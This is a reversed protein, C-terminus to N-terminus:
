AAGALAYALAFWFVMHHNPDCVIMGAIALPLILALPLPGCANLRARWAAKLATGIGLFFLLFGIVGTEVLLLLALNHAAVTRQQRILHPMARRTLEFQYRDPGSGYIPSRLFMEWLVPAMRVRGEQQYNNPTKVNELREMVTPIQWVITSLVAFVLLLGAFRKARSEFWGGQLSLVLVGMVLILFATRSGTKAMGAGTLATLALALLRQHVKVGRFMGLGVLVVVAIAYTAGIVNANQGFVTSRGEIGNDLEVVGIGAMHLLACLSCGCALAWLGGRRAQPYQLVNFMVWFWPLALELLEITSPWWIGSLEPTFWLGSLIRLACYALFWFLAMPVLRLCVRPQALVACLVILQVLRTVGVREGTGPLYLHTFPVSFISLYFAWRVLRSPGSDADALAGFGSHGPRAATRADSDSTVDPPLTIEPAIAPM